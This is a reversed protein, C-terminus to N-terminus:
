TRSKLKNVRGLRDTFFPILIEKTDILEIKNLQTYENKDFIVSAVTFPIAYLRKGSFSVVKLIRDKDLNEFSIEDPKENKLPIYVLDNPSLVFLLKDGNENKEPASTLGQKQREIVINLSITEFVRKGQDTQYVAFFLNTGKQAEVFKSSKNGISGVSYKDAKEYVRVKLVPKHSKGNNYEKINSNMEEIGEPSFALEPDGNKTELHRLLIKKIGTDTVSNEIKTEEFSTDLTKRVAFYREKSERTFYYVRIKSFNIESWADANDAFHKKIKVSDCGQKQLELIKKKLDKEVISLPRKIAENLSVIKIRRLNVEGFVTDKHMPKRIAWSDGKVQKRTTRKGNTDYKQYNNVTKNIIRLNQKFSVIIENLASRADETFSDWPKFFEKPVDRKIKEDSRVWVGEKNKIRKFIEVEEFRRLKRALGRQIHYQQSRASENNFYQVHAKTACAIVLADLAHHRHDIRKKTVSKQLEFPISPIKHGQENTVTFRESDTIENLREFRPLILSNWVDNLGWDQKLKYTISGTCPIVHKSTPEEEFEGSDLRERVINSLLRMIEKSIYRTDNIQREIFKDPIEDMFLRKSKGSRSPYNEKVFSEYQDVSLIEIVKESSTRVKEGHHNKIFEYGLQNDKLKNIEAECIVKNNFSDDFFLSQPIIHEIEYAPTFLKGLPIIDGTYPSRYKQELWCKYRILDSKSPQSAKAIKEIFQFDPDNKDITGLAFEEYIKLIEQQTPSYPRVNEVDDMKQLEILMAKIRLNTNENETIQETMKKRKDAPNKMERGLEIHIEDIQEEKLWIDRVTRLTELIVQEVIPNRLSHQRFKNIFESLQDPNEWKTIEKAESFRGYIIYSALWEPLAKFCRIGTLNIVKERISIRIKEDYEGTIIKEIRQRTNVDIVEESWYKGMRMLPLIKKLAKASYSGYEKRFPPFKRFNEVFEDSLNQRSAFTRLAKEIEIKDEVSYLIHWLKEEVDKTLFSSEVGSKELRSLILGRTENCPYTKDEVYNWRFPCQLDKGKPKKLGFYTELLVKQSIERRDNLYEFLSAYDDESKLFESTVDVDRHTKGDIEKERQYIKLNCILKWLRFEQFLPHSKAICKIGYKQGNPASLSEFPCDSILSKKSKLPRQYFLIDDLFLFTFDRNEINKRHSENSQYLEYICKAYLQRDRLEPHFEKQKDLIRKLEDRYFRREITRVLKGRIKQDPNQLLTDYIYTGVTKGSEEITLETKAKIKNFYKDKDTQSMLDIEEFSPLITLKRREKGEKDTKIVGKENLEETVLFEKVQDLWQPESTFTAQYLWGNELTVMYWSRASNKKDPEGKDIKRVKIKEVYERRDSPTEDEGRLQYYGRKQNFHLLIWSLEEKSIKESLAKKRLYYIAWDHPIRKKEETMATQSKTFDSLMENFSDMFLFEHKRCNEDQSERWEIKPEAYDIFKGYWKPDSKEWGIQRAYHEPLFGLINLVRHLRERRLLHRERLRRTSRFSTREATQSKSNGKDFDSLTAADMPIIRSGMGQIKMPKGDDNTSVVAWGISNTGLDLGLIKKM